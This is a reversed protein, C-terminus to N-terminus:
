TFMSNQFLGSMRKKDSKMNRRSSSYNFSNDSMSNSGPLKIYPANTMTPGKKFHSNRGQGHSNLLNGVKEYNKKLVKPKGKFSKAHSHNSIIIINNQTNILQKPRVHENSKNLIALNKAKNYKTSISGGINRRNKRSVSRKADISNSLNQAINSLRIQYNKKIQGKYSIKNAMLKEHFSELNRHRKHRNMKQIKKPRELSNTNFIKMTQGNSSNEHYKLQGQKMNSFSKMFNNRKEPKKLGINAPRTGVQHEPQNELSNGRRKQINKLLATRKREESRREYSVKKLIKCMEKFDFHAGTDPDQWKSGPDDDIYQGKYNNHDIESSESDSYAM